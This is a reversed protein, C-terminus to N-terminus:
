LMIRERDPHEGSWGIQPLTMLRSMDEKSIEFDYVDLNAKMREVSSSKPLPLVNNQLAFRICLQPVSKGYKEAMEVLAPEKMVRMRGLPSWAEVLIGNAQCFDVAAQQTYGPHYELQDVMPKYDAEEMINMLHHPLFNSVGIARICGEEYLREMAKWSAQDLEKWSDTTLDAIPWHILYLDLYDTELNQITKEFARLTSDYGLEEKWLKSTLFIENRPIGTEQVAQAIDGENFYFAATDLHRYGQRLANVIADKGDSETAKYTGFGIQPIEVGNYLTFYKEM